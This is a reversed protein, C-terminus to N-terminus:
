YWKGVNKHWHTLKSIIRHKIKLWHANFLSTSYFQCKLQTRQLIDGFEFIETKIPARNVYRDQNDCKLESDFIVGVNRTSVVPSNKRDM